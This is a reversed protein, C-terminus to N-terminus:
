DTSRRKAGPRFRRLRHDLRQVSRPPAERNREVHSLGAGGPDGPRIKMVLATAFADPKGGPQIVALAVEGNYVGDLDSPAIGLREALRGSNKYQEQLADMFKKMKDDNVLEGLQSANFQDRAVDPDPLSILLKTTKPFLFESEPGQARGASACCLSAVVLGVVLLRFSTAM